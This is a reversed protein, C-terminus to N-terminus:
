FENLSCAVFSREGFAVVDDLLQFRLDLLQFLVIELKPLFSKRGLALTVNVVGVLQSDVKAVRVFGGVRGLAQGFRDFFGVQDGFM